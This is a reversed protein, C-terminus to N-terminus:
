GERGGANMGPKLHPKGQEINLKRHITQLDNNTQNDKKM